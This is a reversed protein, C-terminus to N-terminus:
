AWGYYRQLASALLSGAVGLEINWSAEVAKAWMSELWGNVAPGFERPRETEVGEDADIAERLREIDEGSVGSDALTRELTQFDGAVITTTLQQTNGSGVVITANDGFIANNFLNRTDTSAARERIQEETLDGELRENLELVFDLLRSRIQTLVQVVSSLQIESWASQIKFGSALNKELLPNAEMPIPRRLSEADKRVFEELVSVSETLHATELSQRYDDDLHMTPIPHSNVQYAVNAFNALVQAPLIRYEPVNEPDSYGNLENNVWQVLEKEGIKHLLVKTKVLANTLDSQESSLLDIIDDLLKM